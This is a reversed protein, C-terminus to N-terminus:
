PVPEQSKISERLMESFNEASHAMKLARVKFDELEEILQKARRMHDTESM